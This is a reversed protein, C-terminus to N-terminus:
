WVLCRMVWEGEAVLTDMEAEGTETAFLVSLKCGVEVMVGLEYRLM